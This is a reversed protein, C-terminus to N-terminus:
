ERNDRAHRRNVSPKAIVTMSTNPTGYHRPPPKVVNEDFVFDGAHSPNHDCVARKHAKRELIRQHYKRSKSM